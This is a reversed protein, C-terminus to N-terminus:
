ATLTHRQPASPFFRSCNELSNCGNTPFSSDKCSSTDCHRDKVDDIVVVDVKVGPVRVVLLEAVDLVCLVEVERDLVCILLVDVDDVEADVCVVLVFVVVNDVCVVLVVVIDVCEVVVCVCVM